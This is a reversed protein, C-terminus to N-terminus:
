LNYKNSSVESDDVEIVGKYIAKTDEFVDTYDWGWSDVGYYEGVYIYEQPININKEIMKDIFRQPAGIKTLAIRLKDGTPVKCYYRISNDIVIEFTKLYKM